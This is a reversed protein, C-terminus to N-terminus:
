CIDSIRARDFEYHGGKHECIFIHHWILQNMKLAGIISENGSWGCTSVQLTSGDESVSWGHYRHHWIDEIMTFLKKLPSAVKNELDYLPFEKVLILFHTTPYGDDDLASITGDELCKLRFNMKEVLCRNEIKVVGQLYQSLKNM